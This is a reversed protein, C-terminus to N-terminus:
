ALALHHNIEISGDWILRLAVYIVVLLGAYGIWRFRHLLKVVATAAAGMLVVSLILGTVLIWPHQRAAGAVGLVNDLSMSVDAAVIQIVAQKLKKSHTSGDHAVDSGPKEASASPPSVHAARLQKYLKWAVWLLLLGGTLTLGIVQMLQVTFLAFVIRFFVAAGIGILIARHRLSAPLGAAAMGVVLANDASMTLDILIIQTFVASEAWFDM